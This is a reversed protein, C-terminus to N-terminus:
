GAAAARLEALASEVATAVDHALGGTRLWAKLQAIDRLRTSAPLM